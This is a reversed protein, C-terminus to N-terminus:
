LHSHFLKFHFPIFWSSWLLEPQLSPHLFGCGPYTGFAMTVHCTQIYCKRLFFFSSSSTTEYRLFGENKSHKLKQSTFYGKEKVVLSLRFPLDSSIHPGRIKRISNNKQTEMKWLTPSNTPKVSKVPPSMISFSSRLMAKMCIWLPLYFLTHCGAHLAPTKNSDNYLPPILYMKTFLSQHGHHCTLM